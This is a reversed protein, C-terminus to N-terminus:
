TMTGTLIVPTAPPDTPDGPATSTQLSGNSAGIVLRPVGNAVIEAVVATAIAHCDAKLAADAATVIAAPTGVPPAVVRADYLRKALGTTCALDGANLAV